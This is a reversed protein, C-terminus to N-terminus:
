YEYKGLLKELKTIPQKRIDLDIPDMDVLNASIDRFNQKTRNQKSMYSGGEM